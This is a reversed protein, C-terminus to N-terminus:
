KLTETTVQQMDAFDQNEGGMAWCFTYSATGCGAHISWGPSLVVEGDRVVVHRTERPAGLLHMVVADDPLDFYLYVETRRLHTHPPMTNWVSGSGLETMGMVLQASRVGGPHIYKNLRRRNARDATGLETADAEARAIRRTPYTAHAPYSVLYYRAPNVPDDSAFSVDRAGRGIYLGDRNAMAFREGDVVVHGAGGVNLVGVERRETFYESLIEDPADLPLPADLPVVGGLVVRDLDILRTTVAGRRFLDTVLFRSRLEETTMRPLQDAAPLSHM